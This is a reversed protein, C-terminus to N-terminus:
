VVSKRDLDLWVNPSRSRLLEEHIERAVVDRSALEDVFHKKDANLLKAGAGRLAETLLSRPKSPIYLATPHFQVYELDLTRAGARHAASIGDGRSCGPATSHEFLKSFGGTALIVARATITVVEESERDFIYAGTARGTEYSKERRKDHLHSMMLDVLVGSCRQINKQKRIAEDVRDMITAGTSDKIHLIRPTNHAAELALDLTGDDLRDFSINLKDLLWAEIYKPGKRVILEVTPLYNCECGAKIIDAIFQEPDKSGRYAIGGQALQSASGESGILIVSRGMSAASLAAMSGALGSGLVLLEADIRSM